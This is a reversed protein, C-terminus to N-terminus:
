SANLEAVLAARNAEPVHKPAVVEGSVGGHKKILERATTVNRPAGRAVYANLAVKIDAESVAAVAATPASQSAATPATVSAVQPAAAPATPSATQAQGSAVPASITGSGSLAGLSQLAEALSAFELTIKVSM